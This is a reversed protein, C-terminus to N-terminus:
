MPAAEAPSADTPVPELPVAESPVVDAPPEVPQMLEDAPPESLIGAPPQTPGALPVAMTYSPEFQLGGSTVGERQKYLTYPMTFLNVFYTGPDAFLYKWEKQGPTPEYAFGTSGAEVNGSAYLAVTQDFHRLQTAQDPVPPILEQDATSHFARESCGSLFTLSAACLITRKTM